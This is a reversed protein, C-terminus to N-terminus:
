LETRKPLKHAVKFLATTTNMKLELDALRWDENKKKLKRFSVCDVSHSYQNSTSPLGSEITLERLWLNNTEERSLNDMKYILAQILEGSILVFDTLSPGPLYATAIGNEDYRDSCNTLSIAAELRDQEWDKSDVFIQHCHKKYGETFYHKRISCIGRESIKWFNDGQESCHVVNVRVKVHDIDVCFVSTIRHDNGTFEVKNVSVNLSSTQQKPVPPMKLKFFSIYSYNIASQSLKYVKALYVEVMNAAIALYEATGLHPKLSSAGKISWVGGWEIDLSGKLIGNDVHLQKYEYCVKKYGSALYRKDKAGLYYDIDVLDKKVISKTSLQVM